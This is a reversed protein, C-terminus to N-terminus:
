MGKQTIYDDCATTVETQTASTSALNTGLYTACDAATTGCVETAGDIPHDLCCIVIAQQTPLSEATHHEDFCAQFTDFGEHEHDHDHCATLLLLAAFALRM